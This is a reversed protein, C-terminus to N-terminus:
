CTAQINPRNKGFYCEPDNYNKYWGTEFIIVDILNIIDPSIHYNDTTIKIAKGFFSNVSFDSLTKGNKKIHMPVDLHVLILEM